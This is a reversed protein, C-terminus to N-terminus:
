RDGIKHKQSSHGRISRICHVLRGQSLQMFTAELEILKAIEDDDLGQAILEEVHERLRADKILPNAM